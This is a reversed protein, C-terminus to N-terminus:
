AGDSSNSIANFISMAKEGYQHWGGLSKVKALARQGMQARLEPHDALHQLRETLAGADRIPVIYGEQGDSFLDEAGTNYTGIVPCACAMAQAQVLALGEEVSPLVLVHSRSMMEKLQSQPVPGLVRADEPWLNRKRLLAIMELSPMGVITLTKAPHEIRQFAQTLYQIGKRLSMMGVFLVDFAGEPPVGIPEFRSLDVGYSLLRLKEPAVGQSLFSRYTFQSPVTIFDAEAYESEEADMMRPDVAAYPQEWRAYEERLIQDQVRIHSSGRDCVYRAGRKKAKKGARLASGSLGVYIDCEPLNKAAFAGFSRADLYQWQQEWYRGILPAWPYAMYPAHIFPFTLILEQPLSENRLKFRPYATMIGSLAGRAHLERALDFSHFKGMASLAVKVAFREQKESSLVLSQRFLHM